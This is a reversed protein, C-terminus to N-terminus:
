TSISKYNFKQCLPTDGSNEYLTGVKELLPMCSTEFPTM